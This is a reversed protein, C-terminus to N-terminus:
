SKLAPQKNEGPLVRVLLYIYCLTFVVFIGTLVWGAPVLWVQSQQSIAAIAVIGNGLLLTRVAGALMEGSLMDARRALWWILFGYGFLAAGFMRSFATVHWYAIGDLNLEPVNLFAMVMPGYVTFAIGTAVFVIANFTMVSAPKMYAAGYRISNNSASTPINGM